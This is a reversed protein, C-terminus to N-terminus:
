ILIRNRRRYTRPSRFTPSFLLGPQRTSKKLGTRTAPVCWKRAKQARLQLSSTSQRKLSVEATAACTSCWTKLEPNKQFQELIARVAAPSKDIFSSLHIYGTGGNIVGYYPVSPEQLKARELPAFDIISDASWPRAVRVRVETGPVGQPTKDSGASGKRSTDTSDVRIIGTARACAAKPQRRTKWRRPLRVHLRRAGNDGIRHRRIRRHDDDERPGGARGFRLVRYLPDVTSLFAGIAERSAATPISPIWTTLNWSRSSATSHSSIGPWPTQRREKQSGATFVTVIVAAVAAVTISLRKEYHPPHAPNQRHALTQQRPIRITSPTYHLGRSEKRELAQRMVLYGINIINRLECLQRSPTSRRFLNKWDGSLPHGSPEMRTEAEPRQTSNWCLIGNDPEGGKGVPHHTGNGRSPSTGADNWEPVDSRFDYGSIHEAAHREAADAYVVAEILSNSALRNGETCVPAAANVWPM